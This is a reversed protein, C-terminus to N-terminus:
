RPVTEVRGDYAASPAFSTSLGETVLVSGDCAIFVAEFALAEDNQTARWLDVARDVGLVFLATSLADAQAGSTAVVSVSSLGSEAPYGTEPDILHHRRIGESDVFYRQYDGSTSVTAESLQLTGALAEPNHPDAIGVTWPTEDPKSGLVTVNGGLDVLAGTANRDRLEATIRDAAYGKAIGGLDLQAENDLTVAGSAADVDVSRFGVRTLATEIEADSPTRYNGSTFGWASTLPYITPDFAGGTAEAMGLAEEILKEVDDPAPLPEDADNLRAIWSGDEAPSLAEDLGRVIETCSSLAEDAENRDHAHVTVTMATDMATFSATATATDDNKAACSSLSFAALIALAIAARLMPLRPGTNRHRNLRPVREISVPM